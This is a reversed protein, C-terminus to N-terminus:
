LNTHDKDESDLIEVSGINMDKKYQISLFKNVEEERGANLTDRGDERRTCNM